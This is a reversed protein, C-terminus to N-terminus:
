PNAAQYVRGERHPDNSAQKEPNKGRDCEEIQPIVQQEAKAYVPAAIRVALDRNMAEVGDRFLIAFDLVNGFIWNHFGADMRDKRVDSIQRAPVQAPSGFLTDAILMLM